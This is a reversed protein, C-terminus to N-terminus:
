HEVVFFNTKVSSFELFFYFVLFINNVESLIGGNQVSPLVVFYLISIRFCFTFNGGKTPLLTTKM